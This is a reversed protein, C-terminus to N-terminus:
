DKLVTYVTDFPVPSEQWTPAGAAEDESQRERGQDVCCGSNQMVWTRLQAARLATIMQKEM